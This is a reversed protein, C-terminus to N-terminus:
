CKAATAAAGCIANILTTATGEFTAGNALAVNTLIAISFGNDVFMGNFASYSATAGDHLVFLRGMQTTRYWGMGYQSTGAQQFVPVQPATMSLTFLPAPIVRNSLLAGNWLALDTVNSWLAGAAFTFSADWLVGDAWSSTYPSASSPPQLYSTEDLQAPGLVNANLYDAYSLGTVAEIVAGLVYYNSNSYSYAAGPSFLLPAKAIQTLVTQSSVGKTWAAAEPFGIYDDLGSTHNLLMRLTIGSDFEYTPLVEGVARELDLQGVNALQLVAAATFQKTVSGIQFMTGATVPSCSKLNAYGYGQAYLVAGYKSIGIALGPLNRAKMEQAAIGDVVFALSGSPSAPPMLAPCGSQVGSPAGGGGGGGCGTLLVVLLGCSLKCRNMHFAAWEGNLFIICSCGKPPSLAPSGNSGRMRRFQSSPDAEASFHGERHWYEIRV